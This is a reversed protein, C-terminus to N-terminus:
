VVPSSYVYLTAFLNPALICCFIITIKRCRICYSILGMYMFNSYSCHRRLGFYIESSSRSPFFCNFLVSGFSTRRPHAQHVCLFKEVCLILFLFTFFLFPRRFVMVFFLHFYRASFFIPTRIVPKPLSMYFM